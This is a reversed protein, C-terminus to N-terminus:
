YGLVLLEYKFLYLTHSLSIFPIGMGQSLAIHRVLVLFPGHVCPFVDLLHCVANCKLSEIRMLKLLLSAKQQKLKM